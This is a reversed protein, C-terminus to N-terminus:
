GWTARLPVTHRRAWVELPTNDIARRAAEALPPWGALVGAVVQPADAPAPRTQCLTWATAHLGDLLDGISTAM